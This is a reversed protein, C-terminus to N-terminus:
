EAPNEQEEINKNRRFRMMAYPTAVVIPENRVSILKYIAEDNMPTPEVKTLGVEKNIEDVALGLTIKDLSSRAM